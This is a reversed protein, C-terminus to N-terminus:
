AIEDRVFEPTILEPLKAGFAEGKQYPLKNNAQAAERRGENERIAIFEMEPTVIGARAYTMQTVSKGQKARLPRANVNPYAEVVQASKGALEASKFGNDEPRISRADYEEVDGRARIWEDRLKPLGKYIDIKVSPDSFPGSTDYVALSEKNSLG